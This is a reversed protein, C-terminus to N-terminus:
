DTPSKRFCDAMVSLSGALNLSFVDPQTVALERYLEVAEQARELAPERQGAESLM